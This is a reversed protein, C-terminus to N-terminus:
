AAATLRSIPAKEKGMHPVWYEPSRSTLRASEPAGVYELLCPDHLQVGYAPTFDPKNTEEDYSTMRFPCGQTDQLLRPSAVSCPRDQHIDFPGERSLDPVESSGGVANSEGGHHSETAPRPTPPVASFLGDAPDGTFSPGAEPQAQNTDAANFLLFEERAPVVPSTRPVSLVGVSGTSPHSFEPSVVIPGAPSYVMSPQTVVVSVGPPEIVPCEAPTVCLGRDLDCVPTVMTPLSGVDGFVQELESDVDALVSLPVAGHENAAPPSAPISLEDELDTEPDIQPTVGLEPCILSLLDGGGCSQEREPPVTTAVGARSMSRIEALDTGSVDMAGPLVQPRCDLVVAGRRPWHTRCQSILLSEYPHRWSGLQGGAVSRADLRDLHPACLM